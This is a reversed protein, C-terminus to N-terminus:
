APTKRVCRIVIQPLAEYPLRQRRLDVFSKTLDQTMVEAHDLTHVLHIDCRLKGVDRCLAIGRCWSM